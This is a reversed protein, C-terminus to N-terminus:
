IRPCSTSAMMSSNTLYPVQDIGPSTRCRARPRRAATDTGAASKRLPGPRAQEATNPARRGPAPGCALTSFVAAVAACCAALGLAIFAGQRRAPELRQLHAALLVAGLTQGTLRATGLM